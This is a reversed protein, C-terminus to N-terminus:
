TDPNAYTTAQRIWETIERLRVTRESEPTDIAADEIRSFLTMVLLRDSPELGTVDIDVLTDLSVLQESDLLAQARDVREVVDAATIDDSQEILKLTAYQVVLRNTSDNGTDLAACGTVLVSLALATALLSSALALTRRLKNM